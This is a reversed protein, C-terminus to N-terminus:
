AQLKADANILGIIRTATEVSLLRNIRLWAKDPASVSVRLEVSPMDADIANEAANPLLDIPAVGLANALSQLSKPTPLVKGRIYTSVSDRPLGAHRALDSQNWKKRMMHVYLRQGFAQKSLHKPISDLESIEDIHFRTTKTM